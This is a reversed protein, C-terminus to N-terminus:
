GSGIAVDDKQIVIWLEFRAMFKKKIRQVQVAFSLLFERLLQDVIEFRSKFMSEEGIRLM